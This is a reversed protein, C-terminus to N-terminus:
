KEAAKDAAAKDAAAEAPAAAEVAAAGEPPTYGIQFNAQYRDYVTLFCRGLNDKFDRVELAIPMTGPGAGSGPQLDLVPKEESGYGYLHYVQDDTRRVTLALYSVKQESGDQGTFALTRLKSAELPKGDIVPTFGPSMFLHALPAGPDASVSEPIGALGKQPVVIVGINEQHVGTSKEIDGEIKVQPSEIKEAVETLFQGFAQSIQPDLIPLDDAGASAAGCAGAALAAVTLLLKRM